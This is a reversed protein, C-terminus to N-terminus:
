KGRWKQNIKRCCQQDAAPFENCAEGEEEVEEEVEEEEELLSAVLPQCWGTGRAELHRCGAGPRSGKKETMDLLCPSLKTKKLFRFIVLNAM